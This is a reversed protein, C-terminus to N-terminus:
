LLVELKEFDTRPVRSGTPSRRLTVLGLSELIRLDQFVNKYDRGVAKALARISPFARRRLDHLLRLREPTLQNLDEPKWSVYTVGAHVIRGLTGPHGEFYEADRLALEALLDRPHSRVHARLQALGGYDRRVEGLLERGTQSRVARIRLVM